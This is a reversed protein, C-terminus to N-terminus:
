LFPWSVPGYLQCFIQETPHTTVIEAIVEKKRIEYIIDIEVRSETEIAEKARLDEGCNKCKEVPSTIEEKIIRTNPVQNGKKNSDKSDNTKNRNGNSGYDKSPPLGSNSSNRRPKKTLFVSVVIDIILILSNIVVASKKNVSKSLLLDNAEKKAKDIQKRISDKSM